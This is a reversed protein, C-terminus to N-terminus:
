NEEFEIGIAFAFQEKDAGNYKKLPVFSKIKRGEIESGIAIYPGGDADIAKINYNRDNTCWIPMWDEATRFEYINPMETPILSHQLGERNQLFITQKQIVAKKIKKYAKTLFDEKPIDYGNRVVIDYWKLPFKKARKNDRSTRGKNVTSEGKFNLYVTIFDFESSFKEMMGQLGYEDIVYVNPKTDSFQEFTTWYYHSGYETHAVADIRGNIIKEKIQEPAEEVFYHDVAEIEEERKPRTTYSTILNYGQEKLYLSLTTKGSGSPGVIAIVLKKRM